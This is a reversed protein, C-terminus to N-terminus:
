RNLNKECPCSKSHTLGRNYVSIYEHGEVSHKRIPSGSIVWIAFAAAALLAAVGIKNIHNDLWNM